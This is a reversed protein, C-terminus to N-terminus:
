RRLSALGRGALRRGAADLALHYVPLAFRRLRWAVQGDVDTLIVRRHRAIGKVARRAVTEASRPAGDILHRAASELEPDPADLSDALATRFFSPCIASVAIGHPALEHSLTDSLAVVGAKVTNYASMQPAHVLGALSAVNAIQGSGQAIFDPAFTHCGRAVGLLNIDVIRQWDEMSTQDITGGVAIGANNILLDLGGWERQVWHRARAWHADDRVDLQLYDAGAPVGAPREAAIDTGLVRVGAALYENALAQGFGSAAGTILVRTPESM